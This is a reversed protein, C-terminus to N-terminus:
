RPLSHLTVDRLTGEHATATLYTCHPQRRRDTPSGPNLLRLGTAAPRTGRSTATGSSSCTSTPSGRAAGNRAARRRAPRTCWASGSARSRSALSRRSGNGCRATTTTATSASSAAPESRSEDLLREDVWDGAHIVVDAEEVESWVQGPLDRARKPVHTDALLLLRTAMPGTFRGRRRWVIRGPPSDEPPPCRPHSGDSASVRRTQRRSVRQGPPHPPAATAGLARTPPFVAVLCAPDAPAECGFVGPRRPSRLWLRRTPLPHCRRRRTARARNRTRRCGPPLCGTGFRRLDPSM